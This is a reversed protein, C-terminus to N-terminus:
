ANGRYLRCATALHMDESAWYLPADPNTCQQVSDGPPGKRFHACTSCRRQWHRHTAGFREATM